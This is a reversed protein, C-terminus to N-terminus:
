RASGARPSPVSPAGPDARLLAGRLTKTEGQQANVVYTRAEHGKAAVVITHDEGASLGEVKLHDGRWPKGDLWVTPPPDIELLVTVSGTKMEADLTRDPEADTLTLDARFAEFGEKTLKLKIDKGLPLKALRAPTVEPRLDGDLWIACGDPKSTVELTGRASAPPATEPLASTAGERPKAEAERLRDEHKVYFVGGFVLALTVIVAAIPAANSRAPPPL